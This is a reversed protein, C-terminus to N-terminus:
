KAAMSAFWALLGGAGGSLLFEITKAGGKVQEKGAELQAVALELKIVSGRLSAQEEHLKRVKEYLGGDKGDDSGKLGQLVKILTDSISEEVRDMRERLLVLEGRIQEINEMRMLTM